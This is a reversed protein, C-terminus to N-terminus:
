GKQAFFSPERQIVEYSANRSRQTTLPAAHSPPHLREIYPANRQSLPIRLFKAPDGQYEFRSCERRALMAILTALVLGSGRIDIM